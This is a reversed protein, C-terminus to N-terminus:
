ARSEGLAYAIAGEFSLASGEHEALDWEGTGCRTRAPKFFTGELRAEVPDEANDYRHARAAGILTAARKDDGHMVAVGAMGRLGEFLVVRIV